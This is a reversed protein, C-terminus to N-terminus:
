FKSIIQPSSLHKSRALIIKIIQKKQDHSTNTISDLGLEWGNTVPLYFNFIIM